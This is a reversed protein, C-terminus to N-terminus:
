NFAPPPLNAGAGMLPGNPKRRFDGQELDMFLLDTDSVVVCGEGMFREEVERTYINNEIIGKANEGLGDLINDRIVLGEPTRGGRQAFIGTSWGVNPDTNM